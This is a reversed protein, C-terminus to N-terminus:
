QIVSVTSNKWDLLQSTSYIGIPWSFFEEGPSKEQEASPGTENYTPLYTPVHVNIHVYICQSLLGFRALVRTIAKKGTIQLGQKM